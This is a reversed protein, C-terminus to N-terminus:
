RPQPAPEDVPPVVLKGPLKLTREFIGLLRDTVARPGLPVVRPDRIDGSVGVPLALMSGGFVDGLIPVAGAVRDVTTLLGVLVNLHSNAGLLDVNGNAALRVADSDFFGEALLFEGNEFRGSATMSRYPFGEEEMKQLSAISRLSLINGILAFKKVRGKRLEAQASGTLNRALEGRTRGQTRLDAQLDANGTIEVGGGTLCRAAAELPEDRMTLKGSAAFAQPTAEFLLPFSLGCMRAEKVDLSARERELGLRGEFPAIRHDGYQVFGARVEVSGTVPLPWLKSPADAPPQREGPKEPVQKPGPKEPPLLRELVVGPSELRADITPGAGTRWVEARLDFSQEEWAFRAKAIRLGSAQATLEASQIGVKRGALWSLDLGEISLRGDALTREARTRDLTVRLDGRVAGSDSALPQRLAAAISSGRLLGSFSAQVLKDTMRVGISADSAADKIAVRRLDLEGPRWALEVGLQPGGDIDFRADAELPGGPRWAIRRASFRLPTKPEASAPAGARELAWRVLKEGSVGQAIAAEVSGERLAYAGSVEAKADLLGATLKDLRVRAPDVSLTGGTVGLPAPLAKLTLSVDRPAVLAEFDAAAPREFSLALRKLTVDARGSVADLQDLPLRERLWPFWQALAVSARGSAAAIRLPAGLALRAELASFASEGLTGQGGSLRLEEGALALEARKLSLKWPLQPLALEELEVAARASLDAYGVHAKVRARKWLNSAAAIEIEVGDHRTRATVDLERLELAPAALVISAAEIRVATDPAFTQLARATAAMVQRYAALPAPAEGQRAAGGADIRIEPHSISLSAIEPQGRLLPWLRLYADLREARATLAGPIEVRVRRLEGHPAPLLRLELAEWAIQGGLAAALRGQIMARVAPTDVLRVGLTLLALVALV